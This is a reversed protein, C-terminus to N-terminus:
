AVHVPGEAVCEYALLRAWEARLLRRPSLGFRQRFAQAFQAVSAFGCRYAVDHLTRSGLPAGRLLGHARELRYALLEAGFGTGERALCAHLLRVPLGLDHAAAMPGLGPDGYHRAIFRQVHRRLLSRERRAAPSDDDAASQLVAQVTGALLDALPAAERPSLAQPWTGIVRMQRALIQLAPGRPLRHAAVREWTAAPLDIAARPVVLALLSVPAAHDLRYTRRDDLVFPEGLRSLMDSGAQAVHGQGALYMDVLLCPMGTCAVDRLTHEVDHATDVRVHNLALDGLGQAALRAQFAHPVPVHPTVPTRASQSVTRWFEVRLRPPVHQTSWAHKTTM